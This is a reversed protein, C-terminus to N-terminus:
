QIMQLYLLKMRALTLLAKVSALHNPSQYKSPMVHYRETHYLSVMELAKGRIFTLLPINLYPGIVESCCFNSQGVSDTWEGFCDFKAAPDGGGLCRLNIGRDLNM